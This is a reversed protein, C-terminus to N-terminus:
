RGCLVWWCRVGGCESREHTDGPGPVQGVVVDFPGRKAPRAPDAIFLGDLSQLVMAGDGYHPACLSWGGCSCVAGSRWSSSKMATPNGQLDVFQVGAQRMLEETRAVMSDRTLAKGKVRFAPGDEKLQPSCNLEYDTWLRVPCFEDSEKHEFCPVDVHDLWWRAKPQRVSVVVADKQGVRVVRIMKKTLIPRTSKKSALFEGGRLFGAVGIVSAAAFARDEPAMAGMDPWLPLLPLIKRLLAVTVPVKKGQARAPFQRKLKRMTRRVLEHGTLDWGMNMMIQADRVGAM